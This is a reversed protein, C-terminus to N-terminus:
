QQREIKWISIIIIIIIPIQEFERRILSHVINYFYYTTPADRCQFNAQAVIM